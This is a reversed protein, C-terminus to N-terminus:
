SASAHSDSSGPLYLNCHASIKGNCQLRPLLTLSQIGTTGAVRSASALSDRSSLLRLNCRASPMGNCELRPLVTLSQRLFLLLCHQGLLLSGPLPATLTFLAEIIQTEM